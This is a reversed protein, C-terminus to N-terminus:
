MGSRIMSAIREGIMVTPLHTNARPLDPMISADAVRLGDYGIVRGFPDVVAAPDDRGGMRCTGSAHVYDGSHALLWADIEDDSGLDDATTGADDLGVSEVIAALAPQRLVALLHRLGWRLRSVDREDQLMGLDVSPDIAPDDSVLAVRGESHVEMLGVMVMAWGLGHDGVGLLNLPLMQLDAHSAGSSWRLLCHIAGVAPSAARGSPALGLVVQTSAHDKLHAGLGARDVGSRLLIAPSHIAGASVIVAGSEIEEGGALRVGAARRGPRGFLVRDVLAGAQVELNPRHRAPDLHTEKSSARRGGAQNLPAAFLGDDEGDAATRIHGMGLAADRFARSVPAWEGEAVTTTPVVSSAFWPQVASWSWGTAGMAEWRDYDAPVGPLGVMAHVASSGGLGRGRPYGRPEQVATRRAQLAPWLRGPAALADFLNTSTLAPPTPEPDPGAELLLVSRDPDESLRAAVVAGASGAGVVIADYHV